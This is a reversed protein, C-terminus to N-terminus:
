SSESGEDRAKLRKKAQMLVRSTKSVATAMKATRYVDDASGIPFSFAGALSKIRDTIDQILGDEEAADEEMKRKALHDALDAPHETVDKLSLTSNMPTNKLSERTIANIRKKINAAKANSM